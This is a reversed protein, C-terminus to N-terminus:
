ISWYFPQQLFFLLWITRFGKLSKNLTTGVLLSTSFILFRCATEFFVSHKMYSPSNIRCLCFEDSISEQWPSDWKWFPKTRGWIRSTGGECLPAPCSPLPRPLVQEHCSQPVHGGGEGAQSVLLFVPCPRSAAPACPSSVAYHPCSCLVRLFLVALVLPPRPLIFTSRFFPEPCLWLSDWQSAANWPHIKFWQQIKFWQKCVDMDADSSMHSRWVKHPFSM